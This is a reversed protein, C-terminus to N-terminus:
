VRTLIVHLLRERFPPHFQLLAAFTSSNACTVVSRVKPRHQSLSQSIKAHSM